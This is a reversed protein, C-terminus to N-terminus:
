IHILSLMWSGGALASRGGGAFRPNYTTNGGGYTSGWKVDLPPNGSSGGFTINPAM